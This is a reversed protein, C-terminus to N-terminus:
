ASAGDNSERDRIFLELWGSEDDLERTFVLDDLEGIVVEVTQAVLTGDMLHGGQVAGSEDAISLHLHSGQAAFTGVLSVIEFPGKVVSTQSQGAFRLAVRSLDGVATLIIAAQLNHSFTAQKLARKLDQGPKLRFAITKM